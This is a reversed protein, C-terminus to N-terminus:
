LVAWIMGQPRTESVVLWRDMEPWSQLQSFRNPDRGGQPIREITHTSSLRGELIQMANPTELDHTEVIIISKSTAEDLRVAALSTTWMERRLFDYQQIIREAASDSLVSLVV